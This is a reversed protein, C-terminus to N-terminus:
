EKNLLDGLVSYLNRACTGTMALNAVPISDMPFNGADIQQDTVMGPIDQYFNILVETGDHNVLIHFKNTFNQM